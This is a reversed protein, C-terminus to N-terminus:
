IGGEIGTDQALQDSKQTSTLGSTSGGSSRVDNPHQVLDRERIEDGWSPDSTEGQINRIDAEIEQRGLTTMRYYSLRNDEGDPVPVEAILNANLLERLHHQLGNSTKGTANVLHKRPLREFEYILYLISYRLSDAISKKRAVHTELSDITDSFLRKEVYEELNGNEPPSNPEEDISTKM